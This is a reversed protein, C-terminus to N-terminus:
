FDEEEFESPDIEEGYEDYAKVYYVDGVAMTDLEFHDPLNWFGGGDPELECMPEGYQNVLCVSINENM